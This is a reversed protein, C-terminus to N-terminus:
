RMMWNSIHIRWDARWLYISINVEVSVIILKRFKLYQYMIWVYNMNSWVFTKSPVTTFWTNCKFLVHSYCVYIRILCSLVWSFPSFFQSMHRNIGFTNIIERSHKFSNFNQQFFRPAEWTEIKESIKKIKLAIHWM